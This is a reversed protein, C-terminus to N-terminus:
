MSFNKFANVSNYGKIFEKLYKFNIDKEKYIVEQLEWETQNWEFLLSAEQNGNDDGHILLKTENLDLYLQLGGNSWYEGEDELGPIKETMIEMWSESWYQNHLTKKEIDITVISSSGLGDWNM